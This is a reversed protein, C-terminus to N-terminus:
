AVLRYLCGKYKIVSAHKQVPRAMEEPTPPPPDTLKNKGLAKRLIFLPQGKLDIEAGLADVLDHSSSPELIAHTLLYKGSPKDLKYIWSFVLVIKINETKGRWVPVGTLRTVGRREVIVGDQERDESAIEPESWRVRDLMTIPIVGQDLLKIPSRKLMEENLQPAASVLTYTHGNYRVLQPAKRKAVLFLM